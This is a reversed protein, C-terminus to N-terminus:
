EYRFNSALIGIQERYKAVTRRSVLIGREALLESIKSDSLPKRKNEEEVIRRIERRIADASIDADAGKAGGQFLRRLEYVGFAGEIYKGRIARSVTSEHIGTEMAIEAMKMPVPAGGTEFLPRQRKAVALAVGRITQRRKELCSVLWEANKLQDAIYKVVERSSTCRLMNRYYPSVTVAPVYENMEIDPCGDVYRVVIDPVIYKQQGDTNLSACPRPNLGKILEYEQKLQEEDIGLREAIRATKGKCIEFLFAEIIRERINTLKGERQLQLCLCEQLNRAGVGPPDLEQVVTIAQQVLEPSFRGTAAQEIGATLFGDEDMFNLVFRTCAELEPPLRIEGVQRILCTYADERDDGIMEGMAPEDADAYNVYGGTPTGNMWEIKKELLYKASALDEPYEIEVLPNEAVYEELYECLEIENLGLVALSLEMQPYLKQIQQNQLQLEM